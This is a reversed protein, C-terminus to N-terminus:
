GAHDHAQRQDAPKEEQAPSLRRREDYNTIMTRTRPVGSIYLSWGVRPSMVRTVTRHTHPQSAAFLALGAAGDAISTGLPEALLAGGATIDGALMSAGAGIAGAPRSFVFLGSKKTSLPAM